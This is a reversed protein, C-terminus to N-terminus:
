VLFFIFSVSFITIMDSESELANLLEQSDFSTKFGITEWGIKVKDGQGM